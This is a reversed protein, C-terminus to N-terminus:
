DMPKEYVTDNEEGEVIADGVWFLVLACLMLAMFAGAFALGFYIAYNM